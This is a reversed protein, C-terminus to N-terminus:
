REAGCDECIYGTVREEWHGEEPYDVRGTVILETGIQAGQRREQRYGSGGTDAHKTIIHMNVAYSDENEYGCENCVNVYILEYVPREEYIEETRAERDVVWVTETVATWRHVHVTEESLTEEPQTQAADTSSSEADEASTETFVETSQRGQESAASEFAGSAKEKKGAATTEATGPEAKQEGGEAPPATEAARSEHADSEAAAAPEEPDAAAAATDVAERVTEYATRHKLPAHRRRVAPAATEEPVSTEAAKGTTVAGTSEPGSERADACSFFLISLLAAATALAAIIKRINM